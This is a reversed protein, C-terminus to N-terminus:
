ATSTSWFYGSITATKSLFGLAIPKPRIMLCGNHCAGFGNEFRHKRHPKAQTLVPSDTSGSVSVYLNYQPSRPESIQCRLYQASKTPPNPNFFQTIVGLNQMESTDALATAQSQWPRSLLCVLMLWCVASSPACQIFLSTSFFHPSLFPPILFVFVSDNPSSWLYALVRSVDVANQLMLVWMKWQMPMGPNECDNGMKLLRCAPFLVNTTLSEPMQEFLLM